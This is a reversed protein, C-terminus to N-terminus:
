QMRKVFFDGSFNVPAADPHLADHLKGTFTGKVSTSSISTISVTNSSNDAYTSSYTKGNEDIYSFIVAPTEGGSAPHIVGSYTGNSIRSLGSVLVSVVNKSGDGMTKFAGVGGIFYGNSESFTGYPSGSFTYSSSGVTFHIAYDGGSSSNDNKKSCGWLLLITFLLFLLFKCQPNFFNKM